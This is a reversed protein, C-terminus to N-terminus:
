VGGLLVAVAHGQQSHSLVLVAPSELPRPQGHVVNIPCNPDPTEYNLTPPILRHKLALLGVVMEVAGSGAGSHGFYSKPATVHVDGLVERIAKAEREDDLHTSIGHAIVCGVAQPALGSEKLAGALARRLAGGRLFQTSQGDSKGEFASAHGLIKALPAAGRGEAHERSELMYAAAGEGNVVGDRGTDFPRCARAPERGRRSLGRATGRFLMTPHVWSGAGGAIMADAQGREIVRM